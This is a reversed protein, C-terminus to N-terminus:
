ADICTHNLLEELGVLSDSVESKKTSFVIKGKSNFRANRPMYHLECKCWPHMAGLTAKYETAGKGSTSPRGPKRGINTGNAMLVSLRFVRPITGDKLYLLKCYPCADSRPIKYVLPDEDPQLKAIANAKGEEILNHVETHAARLWDRQVDGTAKKMKAAIQSISEKDTIGSVAAGLMKRKRTSDDVDHTIQAFNQEVRASMNQVINAIKEKALEVAEHEVNTTMDSQRAMTWFSEASLKAADDPSSSVLAGLLQAATVLDIPVSPTKTIKGEKRLRNYDDGSIADSGCLEAILALHHDRIVSRVRKKQMSTLLRM